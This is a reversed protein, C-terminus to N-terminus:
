SATIEGSPVALARHCYAAVVMMPYSLAQDAWNTYPTFCGQWFVVGLMVFFLTQAFRDFGPPANWRYIPLVVLGLAVGFVGFGFLGFEALLNSWTNTESNVTGAEDREQVLIERATRPLRNLIDPREQVARAAALGAYNGPGLGIVAEVPSDTIAEWARAWSRVVGLESLRRGQVLNLRLLPEGDSPRVFVVVPVLLGIAVTAAWGRWGRPHTILRRALVGGCWLVNFVIVKENAPFYSVLLLAGAVLGYGIGGRELFTGFAACSGIALFSGFAHADSFYGHIWDGKAGAEPVQVFMAVAISLATWAAFLGLLLRLLRRTPECEWAVVFILLPAVYIYIGQLQAPLYTPALWVALLSTSIFTLLLWNLDRIRSRWIRPQLVAVAAFVIGVELLRAERPVRLWAYAASAQPNDAIRANNVVIVWVGALLLVLARGVQVPRLRCRIRRLDVM